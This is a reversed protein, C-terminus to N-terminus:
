TLFSKIAKEMGQAVETAEMEDTAEVRLAALQYASQRQIYLAKAQQHDPALPRRAGSATIRRWCSEFPLDLWIILCNHAALLRRNRPITWAGGGLSILGAGQELVQRLVNTEIKRFAEEGQLTILAGPTRGYLRTIEEDLDIAGRNLIRGLARAVSTKGSGMFGTIVICRNRM